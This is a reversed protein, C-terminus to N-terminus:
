AGVGPATAGVDEVLIVRVFDTLIRAKHRHADGPPVFLGDGARFAVTEGRFDVEMAGELVYGIHGKTCWDAEVFDRAFEVLRLKRSGQEYAKCRVNAAPQEWPLREFDVRYRGM